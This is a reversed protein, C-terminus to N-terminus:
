EPVQSAGLMGGERKISAVQCVAELMALSGAAPLPYVIEVWKLPYAMM